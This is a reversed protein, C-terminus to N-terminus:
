AVYIFDQFLECAYASPVVTCALPLEWLLGARPVLSYPKWFVLVSRLALLCAKPMCLMVGLVVAALLLGRWIACSLASQAEPAVPRAGGAGPHQLHASEAPGRYEFEVSLLAHM